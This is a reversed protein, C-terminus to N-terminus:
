RHNQVFRENGVPFVHRIIQRKKKHIAVMGADATAVIWLLVQIDLSINPALKGKGACFVTSM